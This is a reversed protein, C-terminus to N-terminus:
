STQKVFLFNAGVIGPLPQVVKWICQILARGLRMKAVWPAWILYMGRSCRLIVFFTVCVGVCCLKKAAFPLVPLVFKTVEDWVM